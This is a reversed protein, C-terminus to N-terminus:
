AAATDRHAPADHDAKGTPQPVGAAGAAAPNPPLKLARELADCFEGCLKAQTFRETLVRQATQGMSTLSEPAASAFFRIAGVAADV